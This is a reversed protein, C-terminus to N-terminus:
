DAQGCGSKGLSSRAEDATFRTFWEEFHSENSLWEAARVGFREFAWESHNLYNPLHWHRLPGACFFECGWSRRVGAVVDLWSLFLQHSQDPVM